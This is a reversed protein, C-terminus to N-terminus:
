GEQVTAKTVMGLALDFGVPRSNNIKDRLSASPM